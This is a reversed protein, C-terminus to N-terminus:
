QRATAVTTSANTSLYPSELVSDLMAQGHNEVLVKPLTVTRGKDQTELARLLVSFSGPDLVVGSFGAGTPTAIAGAATSPAGVM